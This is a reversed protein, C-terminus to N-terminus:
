EAVDILQHARGCGQAGTTAVCFNFWLNVFCLLASVADSMVAIDERLQKNTSESISLSQTIERYAQVHKESGDRRFLESEQLQHKLDKQAKIHSEISDQLEKVINQHNLQEYNRQNEVAQLQDRVAAHSSKENSLSFTLKNVQDELSYTKATLEKNSRRLEVIMGDLDQVQQKYDNAELQQSEELVKCRHQLERVTKNSADVAEQLAGKQKAFSQLELQNHRQLDYFESELQLYQEKNTEIHRQM